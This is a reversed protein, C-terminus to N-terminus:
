KRMVNENEHIYNIPNNKKTRQQQDNAITGPLSTARLVHLTVQQTILAEGPPCNANGDHGSLRTSNCEKRSGALCVLIAHAEDLKIKAQWQGHDYEGDGGHRQIM